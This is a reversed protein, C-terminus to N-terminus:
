PQLHMIRMNFMLLDIEISNHERPPGFSDHDFEKSIDLIDIYESENHVM